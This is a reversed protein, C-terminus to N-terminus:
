PVQAIKQSISLGLGTGESRSKTTFFPAFIKENNEPPIGKGNDEVVIRIYEKGAKIFENSRIKIEMDSEDAITDKM